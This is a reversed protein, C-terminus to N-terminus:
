GDKPASVKYEFLIQMQVLLILDNNVEIKTDLFYNFSDENIHINNINKNKIALIVNSINQKNIIFEANVV